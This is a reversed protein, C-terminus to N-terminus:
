LEQKLSSPFKKGIIKIIELITAASTTSAHDKFQDKFSLYEIYGCDKKNDIIQRPQPEIFFYGMFELLSESPYRGSYEEIEKKIEPSIIKDFDINFSGDSNIFFLLINKFGFMWADIHPVATNVGLLIYADLTKKFLQTLADENDKNKAFNEEFVSLDLHSMMQKFYESSIPLKKDSILSKPNFLIMHRFSTRYKGSFEFMQINIKKLDPYDQALTKEFFTQSEKGELSLLKHFTAPQGCQTIACVKQPRCDFSRMSDYDRNKELGSICAINRLDSSAMKASHLGSDGVDKGALVVTGIALLGLTKKIMGM